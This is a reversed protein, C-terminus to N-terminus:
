FTWDAGLLWRRGPAPTFFVTQEFTSFDFAWIGRTAYSRDFLNTAEVFLTIGGRAGESLLGRFARSWGVRANAVAYAPLEPQANADDNDLVQDSTYQADLRVSFGAPLRADLGAGARLRPVLPVRMGSSPGSRFTADIWTANVFTDFSESVRSRLSAEVGLRRTRGANVNMGFPNGPSPTPDYVIEDETRTEFLGVDLRSGAWRARFGAEYSRANEAELEPNSGFGPFAFLEEATPALFAEGYAGWVDLSPLAAFTAGARASLEDFRRADALTPDPLTEDYRVDSRDFRLGAHVTWRAAPKWDDQAYLAITRESARNDTSPFAPDWSGPDAPSTFYGRTDSSGVQWEAGAAFRNEFAEARLAHSVQVASGWTTSADDLYFGGFVSAARGTSLTEASRRRWSVNASLSLDKAVPGIFDLVAHRTRNDAFDLVNYVNQTPDAEFESRSLSGPNGFELSSSGATWALRRDGGLDAGARAAFRTLNGGANTRFGDTKDLSASGFLDFRGVAGGADISDRRSDWTGRAMSLKGSPTGGRRTTIRIVGAQSGAGTVASSPGRVIEIREVADLPIEELAVANNRPDNMRTGDLYVATGTGGVFGRLDLATQVGNGTQDHVVVGSEFALAEQITRAGTREIDERTLVTVNAAVEEIPAEAGPLRAATVEVREQYPTRVPEEGAAVAALALSCSLLFSGSRAIM